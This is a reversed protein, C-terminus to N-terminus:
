SSATAVAPLRVTVAGAEPVITTMFATSPAATPEPAPAPAAAVAVDAAPDEPASMVMPSRECIVTETCTFSISMEFTETPCAARAVKEASGFTSSSAVTVRM